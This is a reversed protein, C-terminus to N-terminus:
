FELKRYLFTKQRCIQFRVLAALLDLPEIKSCENREDLMEVVVVDRVRRNSESEM